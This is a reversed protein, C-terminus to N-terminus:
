QMKGNGLPLPPAWSQSSVLLLSSSAPSALTDEENDPSHCSPSNGAENNKHQPSLNYSSMTAVTVTRSPQELTRASDMVVHVELEEGHDKRLNHFYDRLAGEM